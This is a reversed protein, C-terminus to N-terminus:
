KGELTKLQGILWGDDGTGAAESLDTGQSLYKGFLLTTFGANVFPQPNAFFLEAFTDEYRNVTNPLGTHGIPLYWGTLPKALLTHLESAYFLFGTMQTSTWYYDAGAYGADVGNKGLSIFDVNGMIGLQGLYASWARAASDQEANTWYVLGKPDAGTQMAWNMLFLGISADPAISRTLGVVAQMFGAFNDAYGALQPLGTAQVRVYEMGPASTIPSNYWRQAYLGLTFPEIIFLVNKGQIMSLAELLQSYFASMYATDNFQMAISDFSNESFQQYVFASRLGLSDSQALQENIYGHNPRWITWGYYVGWNLVSTHINFLAKNDKMCAFNDWDDIGFLLKAALRATDPVGVITTDGSKVIAGDSVKVLSDKVSYYIPPTAGTPVGTLFVGTKAGGVRTFLNTGAVYIFGSVTDAGAPPFVCLAGPRSLTCAHVTAISDIRVVVSKVLARTSDTMSSAVLNFLGERRIRFSYAGSGDATDLLSDSLAPGTVPDYDAPILRVAAHAAPRNGADCVVGAVAANGTETADGALPSRSCRCLVALALVSISLLLFRIGNM